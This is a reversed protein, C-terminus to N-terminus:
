APVAELTPAPSVTRSAAIAQVSEFLEQSLKAAQFEDLYLYSSMCGSGISVQVTGREGSSGDGFAAINVRGVEIEVAVFRVMAKSM